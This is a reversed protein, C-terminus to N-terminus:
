SKQARHVNLRFFTRLPYIFNWPEFNVPWRIDPVRPGTAFSLSPIRPRVSFFLFTKSDAAIVKEIPTPPKSSWLPALKPMQTIYLQSSLLRVYLLAVVSVPCASPRTLFPRSRLLLSFTGLSSNHDTSPCALSSAVMAAVGSLLQTLTKTVTRTNKEKKRKEKTKKTKGNLLRSRCAYRM